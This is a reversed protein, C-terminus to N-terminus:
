KRRRKPPLEVAGRVEEMIQRSTKGPWPNKAKRGFHEWAGPDIARTAKLFPATEDFELVNGAKLGLRQRIGLPITIQGKSTITATM